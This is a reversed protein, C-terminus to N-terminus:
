EPSYSVAGVCGMTIERGGERRQIAKVRGWCLIVTYARGECGLRDWLAVLCLGSPM